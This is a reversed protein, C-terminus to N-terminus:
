RPGLEFGNPGRSGNRTLIRVRLPYAPDQTQTPGGVNVQALAFSVLAFPLLFLALSRM